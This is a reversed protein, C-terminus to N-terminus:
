RLGEARRRQLHVHAKAAGWALGPMHLDPHIDSFAGPTIDYVDDPFLREADPDRPVPALGEESLASSIPPVLSRILALPNARQADIDESLLHDVEALAQHIEATLREMLPSVRDPAVRDAIVSEVWGRTHASLGASLDAAYQALKDEDSLPDTSSM